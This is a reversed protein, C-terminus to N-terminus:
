SGERCQEALWQDKSELLAARVSEATWVAILLQIYYNTM